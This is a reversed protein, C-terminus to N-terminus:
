GDARSSSGNQHRSDNNSSSQDGNEVSQDAPRNAHSEVFAELDIHAVRWEKGFKVARLSNDNIWSRVTAEKVQLLDAVDHVTLMPKTLM